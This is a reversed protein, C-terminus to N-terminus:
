EVIMQRHLKDVDRVQEDIPEPRYALQKRVVLDRVEFLWVKNDDDVVFTVYMRVVEWEYM